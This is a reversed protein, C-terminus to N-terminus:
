YQVIPVRICHHSTHSLYAHEHELNLLHLKSIVSAARQSTVLTDVSADWVCAVCVVRVKWAVAILFRVNFYM